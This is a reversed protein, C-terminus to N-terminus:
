KATIAPNEEETQRSGRLTFIEVFEQKGRVQISDVRDFIFPQENTEAEVAEVVSRSVLIDTNYNKNTSELRSALNVSDGIVTYNLREESGFNGVLATGAHLGIRTTFDLDVGEERWQQNMTQYAERMALAARCAHFAPQDVHTPAGWFAMVSDGIYKDITGEELTIRRSMESLYHNLKPLLIDLSTTESYGTFNRIDSFMIVLNKKTGGRHATENAQLLTAVVDRPLYRVFSRMATTLKELSSSVQHIEEVWSAPLPSLSKNINLSSLDSLRKTIQRLPLSTWYGVAAGVPIMLLTTGFTIWLLSTIITKRIQFIYNASIDVGVLEVIGQDRDVSIPAYGSIWTGAYDTFFTKDATLKGTKFLEDIGGVENDALPYERGVPKFMKSNFPMNDVVWFVRFGRKNEPAKRLRWIYAYGVGEVSKVIHNLKAQLMIYNSSQEDARTRIAQTNKPDITTQTLKALAMVKNRASEIALTQSLPILFAATVASTALTVTAFITSM